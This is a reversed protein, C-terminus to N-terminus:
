NLYKILLLCKNKNKQFFFLLRASISLTIRPTSRLTSCSFHKSVASSLMAPCCLLASCPQPHSNDALWLLSQSDSDGSTLCAASLRPPSCVSLLLTTFVLLMWNTVTYKATAPIVEQLEQSHCSGTVGHVGNNRHYRLTNRQNRYIITNVGVFM